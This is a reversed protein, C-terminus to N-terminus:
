KGEEGEWFRAGIVLPLIYLSCYLDLRDAFINVFESVCSDEIAEEAQNSILSSM